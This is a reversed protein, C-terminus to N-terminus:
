GTSEKAERPLSLTFTSGEGPTSQVSLSGHHAEVLQRALYLGLGTGRPGAMQGTPGPGAFVSDIRDPEIGVGKDSVTIVVLNGEVSAAATVPGEESFKVANEVLTAIVRELRDPDAFVSIDDPVEVSIRDAGPLAGVDAVAKDVASALHADTPLLELRGAELRALDLVESIIRSMRNADALITELFQLKQEDTFADFRKVLTASFGKISTLPSRLEHAIKSVMEAFKPETM